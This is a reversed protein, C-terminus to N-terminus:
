KAAKVIRVTYYIVTGFILILFVPLFYPSLPRAKLSNNLIYFFVAVIEAKMIILLYRTMGYVKDRNRDTIKGPVNWTSPIFLIITLLLYLFTSMVPLFILESKNGWRDVVGAANYHGPIQDPASNWSLLLYVYMGLLLMAAIIELVIQLKTLKIKTKM